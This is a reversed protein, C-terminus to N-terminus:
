ALSVLRRGGGGVPRSNAGKEEIKLVPECLRKLRLVPACEYLLFPITRLSAAAAGPNELVALRDLAGPHVERVDDAVLQRGRGRRPAWVQCARAELRDANGGDHM